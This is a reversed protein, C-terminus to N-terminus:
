LAKRFTLNIRCEGTLPHIGPALPAVGHFHLRTPGGWVVVDGNELPVKQPRESRDEGGFLFVAPLGLSVSVIPQTYDIENRDQHLGMRAGPAYRNILCADPVFAQYGGEKAARIALELFSQPMSPWPQGTEPDIPDYRYGKKDSVWGATGCNTMGVSMVGGRTAMFRFPSKATIAHIAEILQPADALAFGRLVVAGPALHQKENPKPQEVQNFLPEQKPASFARM